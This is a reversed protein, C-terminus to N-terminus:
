RDNKIMLAAVREQWRVLFGVVVVFLARRAGYRASDAAAAGRGVVAVAFDRRIRVISAARIAAAAAYRGRDAAQRAAERHARGTTADTSVAHVAAISASTHAARAILIAVIYAHLIPLAATPAAANAVITVVAIMMMM